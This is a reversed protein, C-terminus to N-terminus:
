LANPIPTGKILVLAVLAFLSLTVSLIVEADYAAITALGVSSIIGSALCFRIAQAEACSVDTSRVFLRYWAGIIAVVGLVTLVGVFLFLVSCEVGGGYGLILGHPAAFLAVVSLPLGVLLGLALRVLPHDIVRILM